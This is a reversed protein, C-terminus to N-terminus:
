KPQRELNNIICKYISVADIVKLTDRMTDIQVLKM